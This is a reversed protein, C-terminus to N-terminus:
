RRKWLCNDTHGFTAFNQWKPSKQTAMAFKIKLFYCLFIAFMKPLKQFSLIENIIINNDNKEDAFYSMNQPMRSFYKQQKPLLNVAFLCELCRFFGYTSPRSNQSSWSFKPSDDPWVPRVVPFLCSSIHYRDIRSTVSVNGLLSRYTKRNMKM